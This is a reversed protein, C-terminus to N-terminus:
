LQSALSAVQTDADGRVPEGHGFLVTDFSLDALKRVSANAQPMDESFEPNPGVVGGDAGNIADGAVLVGAHQDLVSVHGPTHGPTAVIRLGFVEDGDGVATISGPASIAPIDAQGAYATAEPARERVAGLSGVHDPHKHTLIVHAVAEWGSGAAGLVEEIDDASGAVGTDVVVAQGDRVLVYASVFGLAVRLWDRDQSAPTGGTPATTAAADSAPSAAGPDDDSGCAAGLGLVAVGLTARGVRALFIRRDLPRPSPEM